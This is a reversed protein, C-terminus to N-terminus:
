YLVSEILTKSMIQSKVNELFLLLTAQAIPELTVENYHLTSVVYSM